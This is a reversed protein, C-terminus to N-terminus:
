PTVVFVTAPADGNRLPDSHGALVPGAALNDDIGRAITALDADGLGSDFRRMAAAQTRAVASSRRVARMTAALRPSPSPSPAGAAIAASRAAVLAAGAATM